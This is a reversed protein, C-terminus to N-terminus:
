EEEDLLKTQVGRTDDFAPDILTKDVKRLGRYCGRIFLCNSRVLRMLFDPDSFRGFTHKQAAKAVIVRYPNIGGWENLTLYGIDPFNPEIESRIAELTEPDAAFYFRSCYPLYDKWKTDARYDEKSSKVEVIVAEFRNSIAYIDARLHQTGDLIVEFFPWFGEKSLHMASGLKLANVRETKTRATLAPKKQDVFM